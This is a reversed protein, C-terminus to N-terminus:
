KGLTFGELYEIASRLISVNEHALGLMRNCDQCLMKRAKGTAHDHDVDLDAEKHCIYCHGDAEDIMEQLQEVTLGYLKARMKFRTVERCARCGRSGDPHFFTNAEDFKHQQPCEQKDRNWVQLPADPALSSSQHKRQSVARCQKCVIKGNPYRYTNDATLMHGRAPCPKGIELQERPKSPGTGHRNECTRCRVRVGEMRVNADDLLHGKNCKGGRVLPKPGSKAGIGKARRSETRYCAQCVDKAGHVPKTEHGPTKCFGKSM